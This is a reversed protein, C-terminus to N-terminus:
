KSGASFPLSFSFTSGKGEESRVWISGGHAEVVHKAIALGMGTGEGARAKDGKYFREFVRALDEKSIGIGTDTIDVAVSGELARTTITIEGGAPTFKIANHVLNAVVQRVRDKDTPVSPLDVATERSISLKQRDAQPRLQAIVEDVLQNLDVPEKRLEAKGTEIRSLETLEAVLQTLRDVESDIRALFDGAAEKDDVAGDRLTEVMAKIGALPTRFEHSINGIVDRRTTQLNRLETLDQLLLLVSTLENHIVPIAIARLYRKTIGSEYQVAQTGATKLCLKLLEDVEHDRVVEILPKNKAEKINFLNEAARNALSINGESDIMIVSDTMNDLITALRTRDGSITEVLEQTKASMENFAHTLEGVEDKAEIAIKQGLEGSAIRKSAVTLRRVPRTTIRAIIWAAIVVLAMAVVMAVIISITVQHVLNEVDTLPLSVRAVGLIEGGYSIPVAVYMMKQGLTTSYRTSQGIGTALADVIEPRNAHNEMTIPDEESDGLVTGDLAIITVRTEIEVGLKKALADLDSSEDTSLLGSLSAEATIRAENELQSRLNDLQSNRTSDVLYVGLIVMIILVVLIFSITIRWQISRFM